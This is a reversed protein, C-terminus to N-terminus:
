QRPKDKSNWNAAAFTLVRNTEQFYAFPSIYRHDRLWDLATLVARHAPARHDIALTALPLRDGKKNIYRGLNDFIEIHGAHTVVTFRDEISRKHNM